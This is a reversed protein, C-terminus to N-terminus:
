SNETSRGFWVMALCSSAELIVLTGVGLPDRPEAAARGGVMQTAEEPRLNGM